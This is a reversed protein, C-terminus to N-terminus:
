GVMMYDEMIVHFGLKQYIKEAQPNNTFLLPVINNSLMKQAVVSIIQSAFGNNEYEKSTTVGTFMTMINPKSYSVASVIEGNLEGVLTTGVRFQLESIPNDQNFGADILKKYAPLDDNTLMRIKLQNDWRLQNLQNLRMIKTINTALSKDILKLLPEIYLQRGTIKGNIVQSNSLQEYLNAVAQYDEFEESAVFHSNKGMTTFCAIIEGHKNVFPYIKTKACDFQSIVFANSYKEINLFELIQETKM